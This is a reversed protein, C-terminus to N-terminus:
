NDTHFDLHRKLNSVTSFQKGCYECKQKNEEQHTNQHEELTVKRTFVKECSNCNYAIGKSKEMKTNTKQESFYHQVEQQSFMQRHVGKVHRGLKGKSLLLKQCILCKHEPDGHVQQMANHQEIMHRHLNFKSSLTIKCIDCKQRPFDHRRVHRIKLPESSFVKGCINCVKRWYLKDKVTKFEYLCHKCQLHPTLHNNLHDLTNKKCKKCVIKLGSYKISGTHYNRGDIKVENNHFLLNSDIEIDGAKFNDPHDIWHEQCQGEKQIVCEKTNYKVHQKHQKCHKIRLLQCFKCKCCVWCHQLNCPYFVESKMNSVPGDLNLGDKRVCETMHHKYEWHNRKKFSKCDKHEVSTLDTHQIKKEDKTIDCKDVSYEKNGYDPGCCMVKLIPDNLGQCTQSYTLAALSIEADRKKIACSLLGHIMDLVKKESKVFSPRKHMWSEETLVAIDVKLMGEEDYVLATNFNIDEALKLMNPAGYDTVELTVVKSECGESIKEFHPSFEEHLSKRLLNKFDYGHAMFCKDPFYYCGNKCIIREIVNVLKAKKSRYLSLSNEFGHCDGILKSIERWKVSNCELIAEYDNVQRWAKVPEKDYTYTHMLKREEFTINPKKKQQLSDVVNYSCFEEDSSKSDENSSYRM